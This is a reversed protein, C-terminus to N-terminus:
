AARASRMRCRDSCWRRQRGALQAGCGACRRADQRRTREELYRALCAQESRPPAIDWAILAARAHAAAHASLRLRAQPRPQSRGSRLEQVARESLGAAEAAQRVPLERLVPLVLRQWENRRLDAYEALVQEEEGILGAAVEELLNAEKGVHTVSLADVPRRSLLGLTRRTCTRGDPGLSKAEPHTRYADLVHRYSKVGVVGPPLPVGGRAIRTEGGIRYVPGNPDHVNRWPLGAWESPDPQYPAVLCFRKPDAGPPHGGPAAHAVLLFNAPKVQEAYPRGADWATFPRLLRPHSATFRTLAPRKLWAPEESPLGLADERVIWEWAERVWDRDEAEPDLPNLYFGGLAHESWKVLAPQGEADLTYLCYRKASIAYCHLQRRAGTEPDFNEDELVLLSGPVLTREYPNLAQFRGVIRDVDAWPLARVCERGREDREPGGPCPVLGGDKSAVIAMSDTDAFAWAGGADSVLRELLALMLRAGGTVLAALPPFFYAGPEELASAESAFRELGYIEVPVPEARPEQRSLEVLIGYSAANAVTKLAAATRLSEDDGEAELRRREEVLARFLDERRPDFPRSGRISIPRLGRAKGAPRLRLVRLIRPARGTLLRAAVLDPLTYWLPERSTLPNLAIGFSGGERYRARVPLVDGEPQVLALGCLKPWLRPNFARELPLGALWREVEASDEEVLEVRERALLRWLGMLACVSPYMSAFDCYVVPVPVRRIRCEARGGYYAVLSHGLLEPSFGPQRELVPRAGAERLYAKALSAPSYARTPALQLGWREYEAALAQYLEATAAVDERCYDVYEASIQGHEVGRKRYEIGFERCASELNHGEGTLAYALTRLDLFSGRGRREADPDAGPRSRSLGIRARRADLRRVLLRPRYRNERRRGGRAYDALPLSFGGAFGKARAVGWGVALRSLDFPLNFGVVTAGAALAPLLVRDVFDARSRLRLRRARDCVGPDVAPPRRRAYAALLHFAEPDREGLDDAVVLGEEACALEPGGEQWALRYYRYCGFLLAQAADRTTECDLVLIAPPRRATEIRQRGRQRQQRAEGTSETDADSIPLAYARVALPLPDSV